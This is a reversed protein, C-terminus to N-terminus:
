LKTAGRADLCVISSHYSAEFCYVYSYFVQQFQENEMPPASMIVLIKKEKQRRSFTFHTRLTNTQQQILVTWTYLTEKHSQQRHTVNLQSSHQIERDVVLVNRKHAHESDVNRWTLVCFM